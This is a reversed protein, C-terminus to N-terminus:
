IKRIPIREYAGCNQCQVEQKLIGAKTPRTGNKKIKDSGCNKCTHFRDKYKAWIHPHNKIYPKIIDYWEELKVVDQKNYRVMEKVAAKNGVRCKLWLDYDTKIKGEGTFVKTLYDLKNSSFSAVKATAKVTDVTPIDPLPPLRHYILRANFKKIDFSDGYHHVLLDASALVERLQKIMEYDDGPATMTVAHVKSKGAWKWCACIMYWDELINDITLNINRGVRWTTAVMPSVEIDWFLIAPEKKNKIM